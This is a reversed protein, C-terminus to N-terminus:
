VKIRISNSLEQLFRWVEEFTNYLPTPTVHMIDPRKLDVIIGVSKLREVVLQLMQPSHWRLSLMAGRQTADRPTIITWPM